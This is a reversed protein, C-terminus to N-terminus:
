KCNEDEKQKEDMDWKYKIFSIVSMFIINVSLWFLIVEIM